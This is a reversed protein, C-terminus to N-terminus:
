QFMYPTVLMALIDIHQIDCHIQITMAAMTHPHFLFFLIQICDVVIIRVDDIPIMVDVM